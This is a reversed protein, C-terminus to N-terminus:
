SLRKVRWSANCAKNIADEFLTANAM